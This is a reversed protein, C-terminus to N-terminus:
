SLHKRKKSPPVVSEFEWAQLLEIISQHGKQKALYMPTHQFNDKRDVKISKVEYNDYLLKVVEYQGHFCALHLPTWGGDPTPVNFDIDFNPKEFIYKLLELHGLQCAYHLIHFGHEGLANINQPFRQLLQIAVDSNPNMCAYHLPTAQNNNPTDFNVGQTLARHIAVIKAGEIAASKSM